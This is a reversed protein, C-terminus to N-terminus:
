AQGGGETAASQLIDRVTDLVDRYSDGLRHLLGTSGEIDTMLMTVFGTPLVVPPGEVQGLQRETRLQGAIFGVPVIGFKKAAKLLRQRARERAADDTRQVQNFRALANRVHAEGYIPLGRKGQKDVHAFASGPLRARAAPDLKAM